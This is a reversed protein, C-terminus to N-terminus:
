ICVHQNCLAAFHLSNTEERLAPHHRHGGTLSELSENKEQVDEVPLDVVNQKFHSLGTNNQLGGSMHHGEGSQKGAATLLHCFQEM